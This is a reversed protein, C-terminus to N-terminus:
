PASWIKTCPAWISISGRAPSMPQGALQGQGEQHSGQATAPWRNSVHQGGRGCTSSGRDTTALNPAAAWAAAACDAPQTVAPPLLKGAAARSGSSTSCSLDSKATTGAETSSRGWRAPTSPRSAEAAERRPAMRDPAIRSCCAPLSASGAAAAAPGTGLVNVRHCLHSDPRLHPNVGDGRPHSLAEMGAPRLMMM